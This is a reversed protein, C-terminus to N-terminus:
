APDTCTRTDYLAALPGQRALPGQSALPGRRALPGTERSRGVKVKSGPFSFRIASHLLTPITHSVYYTLTVTLITTHPARMQEFALQTRISEAVHLTLVLCTNYSRCVPCWRWSVVVFPHPLPFSECCKLTNVFVCVLSGM